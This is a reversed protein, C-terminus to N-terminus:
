GRRALEPPRRAKRSKRRGHFAVLFGLEALGAIAIVLYLATKPVIVGMAGLCMSLGIPILLALAVTKTTPYADVFAAIAGAAFFSLLVSILVGILMVGADDTLGLAALSSDFSFAITVLVIQAVAGALGHAPSAPELPEIREIQLHFEHVAKIILFTGGCFLIVSRWTVGTAALGSFVDSWGAATAIWLQFLARLILAALLGLFLALRATKAPLLVAIGAMAVINDISLFIEMMGLISLAAWGEATLLSQLM